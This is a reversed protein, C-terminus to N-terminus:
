ALTKGSTDFRLDAPPRPMRRSSCSDKVRHFGIKFPGRKADRQHKIDAARGPVPITALPSSGGVASLRQRGAEVRRTCDVSSKGKISYQDM